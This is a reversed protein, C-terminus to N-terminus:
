VKWLVPTPINGTNEKVNMHELLAVGIVVCGIILSPARRPADVTSEYRNHAVLVTKRQSPNCCTAAKLTIPNWLEGTWSRYIFGLQQQTIM